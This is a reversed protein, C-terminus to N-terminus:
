HTANTIGWIIGAVWASILLIVLIDKGTIKNKM